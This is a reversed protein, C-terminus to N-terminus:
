VGIDAAKIRLVEHPVRVEHIVVANAENRPAIATWSFVFSPRCIRITRSKPGQLVSSDDNTRERNNASTEANGKKAIAMHNM